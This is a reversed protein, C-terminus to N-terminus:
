IRLEKKVEDKFDASPGQTATPHIKGLPFKFCPVEHISGLSLYPSEAYKQNIIAYQELDPALLSEFRVDSDPGLDICPYSENFTGRM